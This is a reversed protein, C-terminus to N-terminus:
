GEQIETVKGGFVKLAEQVMPEGTLEAERKQGMQQAFSQTLGSGAPLAVLRFPIAAEYRAALLENILRLHEEKQILGILFASNEPYGIRVEEKGLALLVGEELYSGLNPKKEKIHRLIEAWASADPQLTQSPASSAQKPKPSPSGSAAQGPGAEVKKREKAGVHSDVPVSARAPGGAAPVGKDPFGEELKLRREGTDVFPNAPVSKDLFGKELRELTELVEEIPLLQPLRLAKLFAMELVWQPSVGTRIEELTKSFLNFFGHLLEVDFKEAERRLDELDESGLDVQTGGATPITKLITLHRLHELWDVCFQRLDYGQDVVQQVRKLTNEADQKRVACSLDLLTAESTRGLLVALEEERVTGGGFVLAQDLLSLADRMSGEAAKAVLVASRENLVMSERQAIRLLQSVIEARSMKRFSFHQCRSLITEPIKHPETTAFIFVLHPPPEELTKLLANFASNSLMHVEDIIYVKHEGRMPLYKIQERLDRIDDVGTSSAGDIEVVNVSRGESIEQCVTCRNCPEGEVPESCNIAKALIRAVSTKGVGRVGSFLYAHAVKGKMVASALTKAIHRQGVVESFTQPRWRRALVQYGM